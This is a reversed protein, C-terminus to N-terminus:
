TTVQSMVEDAFDVVKKEIGEGVEYRIVTRVKATLSDAYAKVTQDPNKVFPQELLCIEKLQKNLKGEIIGNMVKEPKDATKPDNKAIETQIQREHEVYEDSIDDRAIFQPAMAAVHMAIDRAGATDTCGELVVLVAIKGGMHLYDGFADKDTKEVIEFRRLSIKEGITSAAEAIYTELDKGEIQSKLAEDLDKPSVSLIHEGLKHVLNQFQENRAVFDTESNVELIVARNKDIVVDALGEAAIRSAKKAAKAIGNERLWDVAAEIDGDTEQLAKKCDLMGAGTLERLEKVMSATVKM